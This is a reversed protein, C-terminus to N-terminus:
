LATAVEEAPQEVDIIIPADAHLVREPVRPDNPDTGAAHMGAQQVCAQHQRCNIHCSLM